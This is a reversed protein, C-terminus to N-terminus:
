IGESLRRSSVSDGPKQPVKLTRTRDVEIWYINGDEGVIGLIERQSDRHIQPVSGVTRILSSDGEPAQGPIPTPPQVVQSAVRAGPSAPPPLSARHVFVALLAAAIAGPILWIGGAAFVWRRTRPVTGRAPPVQVGVLRPSVAWEAAAAARRDLVVYEDFLGRAQPNRLLERQLVLEEDGRLEGDLHRVILCELNEDIPTM